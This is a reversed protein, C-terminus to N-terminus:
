ARRMNWVILATLVAIAPLFILLLQNIFTSHSDLLTIKHRTLRRPGIGILEERGMLWHMSSKVFDAQEPRTNNSALFDTNAIVVMKSILNKTADDTARGRLVAAAIYIKGSTDEETNLTPYEEKYRTEGWWGAAAQILALPVIRRNTLQDDNERVELSCTSGEFVTSKGGLDLNIKPGRTFIARTNSLTQKSQVTIVRDNRPTIGYNRLFIRLNDLRVKPDLTVLISSQPRDWYDTLLKLERDDLDYQPAILAFGAADSPIGEALTLEKLKINQQWLMAELVQWAPKGDKSELNSKDKAFYIIRPTGEIAGLISSSVIDEDQWAAIYRQKFQDLEELYLDKVRVTRVHASLQEKKQATTTKETVKEDGAQRDTTLTPPTTVSKADETRGDIIIMDDIYPQNYTNAIEITRDTQRAPDVFELTMANGAQSQYEDLLNHMRAYHPSSRRIVAIINIPSPRKQVSDSRLLKGSRDSLTFEKSATLDIRKHQACSLYNASGVVILFLITQVIVKISQGMRQIPRAPRLAPTVEAEALPAAEPPETEQPHNPM